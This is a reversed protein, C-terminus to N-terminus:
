CEGNEIIEDSVLNNTELSYSRKIVTNSDCTYYNFNKESIYPNINTVKNIKNDNTSYNLIINSVKYVEAGSINYIESIGGYTLLIYEGDISIYYYEGNTAYDSTSESFVYLPISENNYQLLGIGSICENEITDYSTCKFYYNTGQYEISLSYDKELKNEGIIDSLKAVYSISEDTSEIESEDDESDNSSEKTEIKSTATTNETEDSSTYDTNEGMLKVFMFMGIISAALVLSFLIFSVTTNYVVKFDNKM